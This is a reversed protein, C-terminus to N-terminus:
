GGEGLREPEVQSDSVDDREAVILMRTRTDVALYFDSPVFDKIVLDFSPIVWFVHPHKRSATLPIRIEFRRTHSM